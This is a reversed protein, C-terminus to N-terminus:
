ISSVEVPTLQNRPILLSRNYEYSKGESRRKKKLNSVTDEVRKRRKVNMMSFVACYVGSNEFHNFSLM